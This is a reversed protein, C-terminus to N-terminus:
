SWGRRHSVNAHNPVPKGNVPRRTYNSEVPIGACGYSTAAVPAREHSTAPLLFTDIIQEERRAGTRAGTLCSGQSWVRLSDPRPIATMRGDGCLVGLM